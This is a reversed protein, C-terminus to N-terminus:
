LCILHNAATSDNKENNSTDLHFLLYVIQMRSITKRVM